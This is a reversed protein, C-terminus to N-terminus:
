HEVAASAVVLLSLRTHHSQPVAPYTKLRTTSHISLQPAKSHYAGEPAYATNGSVDFVKGMIAVYIPYSPSNGAVVHRTLLLM